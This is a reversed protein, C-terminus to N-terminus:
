TITMHATKNQINLKLMNLAAWHCIRICASNRPNGPKTNPINIKAAIGNYMAVVLIITRVFFGSNVIGKGFILIGFFVCGWATGAACGVAVFCFGVGVSGSFAIGDSIRAMNLRARVFPM